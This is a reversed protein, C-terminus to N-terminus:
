ETTVKIDVAVCSEGDVSDDAICASRMAIGSSADGSAATWTAFNMAGDVLQETGAVYTESQVRSPSGIVPTDTLVKSDM